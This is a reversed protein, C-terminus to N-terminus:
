LDWDIRCCRSNAIATCTNMNIQLVLGVVPLKVAREFERADNYGSYSGLKRLQSPLCGKADEWSNHM